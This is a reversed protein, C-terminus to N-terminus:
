KVDTIDIGLMLPLHVRGGEWCAYEYLMHDKPAKKFADFAIKWPKTFVKPDEITAEYKITDEATRTFREVVHLAATHFVGLGNNLTKAPAGEPAQRVGLVWTKDTFNTVDVVLTNGEWRGRSDGMWLHVNPNVHPRGDLPIVRYLHNWEYVLIVSGPVQLFQYTNYDVPMHVRPVGSPLCRVRPDLEALKTQNRMIAERKDSAWPQLPIIGDPPDVVMAPQAGRGGGRGAGAGEGGAGRGGGGRGSPPQAPNEVPQVVDTPLWMGSIDPQGDPTRPQKYAPAQAAASATTLWWVAL